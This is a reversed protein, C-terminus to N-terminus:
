EDSDEEPSGDTPNYKDTLDNPIVLPQVQEGDSTVDVSDGYESKRKRELLWKATKIDGEKIKDKVVKSAELVPENRLREIEDSLEEDEDLWRYYTDKSIGAHFCIDKVTAGYSAAEKLLRVTDDDKKYNTKPGPKAM